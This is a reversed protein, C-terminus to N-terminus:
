PFLASPGFQCPRLVSQPQRSAMCTIVIIIISWSFGRIFVCNVFYFEICHIVRFCLENLYIHMSYKVPVLEPKLPKKLQLSVDGISVYKDDAVFCDNMIRMLATLVNCFDIVYVFM